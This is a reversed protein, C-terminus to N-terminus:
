LESLFRQAQEFIKPSQAAAAASKAAEFARRAQIRKGGKLYVVGILVKGHAVCRLAGSQEALRVTGFLSRLMTAPDIQPLIERSDGLLHANTRLLASDIRVRDDHIMEAILEAEELNSLFHAIDGVEEFISALEFSCAAVMTLKGLRRFEERVASIGEIRDHPDEKRYAIGYKCLARNVPEDHPVIELALELLDIERHPYGSGRYCDALCRLSEAQGEAHGCQRYRALAREFWKTASPHDNKYCLLMIGMGRCSDAECGVHQMQQAANAVLEFLPMADWRLFYASTQIPERLSHFQDAADSSGSVIEDALLYCARIWNPQALLLHRTTADRRPLGRFSGTLVQLYHDQFRQQILDFEPSQKLLEATYARRLTVLNWTGEAPDASILHAMQLEPLWQSEGAGAVADFDDSTFPGAFAGCARFARQIAEANEGGWKEILEYGLRATTSVARHRGTKGLDKFQHVVETRGSTGLRLQELQLAVQDPRVATKAMAAITEIALPSQGCATILVSAETAAMERYAAPNVVAESVRTRLLAFAQSETMGSELNFRLCNEVKLAITTTCLIVLNPCQCVLTEIAREVVPCLVTELSDLVILCKRDLLRFALHDVEHQVSALDPSIDLKQYIASVLASLSRSEVDAEGHVETDSLEVFYIPLSPSSIRRCVETSLRTKGSGGSAELSILLGEHHKPAQFHKKVIKEIEDDVEPRPIYIDGYTPFTSHTPVKGPRVYDRERQPTIGVLEFVGKITAEDLAEGNRFRYVSKPNVGLDPRSTCLRVVPIDLLEFSARWSDLGVDTPVWGRPKREIM